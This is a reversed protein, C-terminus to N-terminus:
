QQEKSDLPQVPPKSLAAYITAALEAPSESEAYPEFDDESMTGVQWASWVRNCHYVGHMNEAILDALAEESLGLTAHAVAPAQVPGAYLRSGVQPQALWNVATNGNCSRIVEAVPQQAPAPAPAATLLAAQLRSAAEATKDRWMQNHSDGAEGWCVDDIECSVGWEWANRTLDAIMKDADAPAAIAELLQRTADLDLARRPRNDALQALLRTAQRRLHPGGADTGKPQVNGQAEKVVLELRHMFWDSRYPDSDDYEHIFRHLATPAPMVEPLDLVAGELGAAARQRFEHNEIILDCETWTPLDHLPAQERPEDDGEAPAPAPAARWQGDCIAWRTGDRGNVLTYDEPHRTSVQVTTMAPDRRSQAALAARLASRAAAIRTGVEEGHGNQYGPGLGGTTCGDDAVTLAFLLERAAAALAQGGEPAQTETTM